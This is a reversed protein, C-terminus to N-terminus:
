YLVFLNLVLTSNLNVPKNQIELDNRSMAKEVPESSDFTIFGFGRPRGTDRDVM